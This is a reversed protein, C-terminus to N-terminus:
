GGQKGPGVLDDGAYSDKAGFGFLADDGGIGGDQGHTGHIGLLDFVIEIAAGPSFFGAGIGDLFAAVFEALRNLAGM